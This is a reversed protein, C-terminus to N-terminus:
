SLTRTPASQARCHRHCSSRIQCSFQKPRHVRPAQGRSDALENILSPATTQCTSQPLILFNIGEPPSQLVRPGCASFEVRRCSNPQKTKAKTHTKARSYRQPRVHRLILGQKNHSFTIKHFKKLTWNIYSLGMAHVSRILSQLRGECV